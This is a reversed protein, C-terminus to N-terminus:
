LGRRVARMLAARSRAALFCLRPVRPRAARVSRRAWLTWEGGEARAFVAYHYVARATVDTDRFSGTDGEYVLRRGGDPLAADDPGTAPRAESRLIRVRLLTSGPYDWAFLVSSEMSSVHLRRVHVDTIHEQAHSVAATYGRGRRTANTRAAWGVEVVSPNGGRPAEALTQRRAAPDDQPLM